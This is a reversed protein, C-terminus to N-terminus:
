EIVDLVLHALSAGHPQIQQAAVDLNGVRTVELSGVFNADEDPVFDGVPVLEGVVRFPAAQLREAAHHLTIPIM